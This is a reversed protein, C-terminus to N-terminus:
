HISIHAQQTQLKYQEHIIQIANYDCHSVTFLNWPAASVAIAPIVIAANKVGEVGVTGYQQQEFPEAGYQDLGGNKIKSM